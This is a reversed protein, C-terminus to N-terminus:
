HIIVKAASPFNTNETYDKYDVGLQIMQQRLSNKMDAKFLTRLKKYIIETEEATWSAGGQAGCLGFLGRARGFLSITPLPVNM